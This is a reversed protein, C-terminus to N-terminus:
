VKNTTSLVSFTGCNSCGTKDGKKLTPLIKVGEETSATKAKEM